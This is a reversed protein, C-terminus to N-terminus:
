VAQQCQLAEGQRRRFLPQFVTKHLRNDADRLPRRFLSFRSGAGAFKWLTLGSRSGCKRRSQAPAFGARPLAAPVASINASCASLCPMGEATTRRGPLRAMRLANKAASIKGFAPSKNRKWLLFPRRFARYPIESPRKGNQRNSPPRRFSPLHQM